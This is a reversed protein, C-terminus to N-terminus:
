KLTKQQKLAVFIEVTFIQVTQPSDTVTQKNKIIKQSYDTNFIRKTLVTFCFVFRRRCM